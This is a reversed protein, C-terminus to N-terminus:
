FSLSSAQCQCLSEMWKDIALMFHLISLEGVSVSYQFLHQLQGNTCTCRFPIFLKQGATINTSLNKNYSQLTSLTSQFHLNLVDVTDTSQVTYYALAHECGTSPICTAEVHHTAIFLGLIQIAAAAALTVYQAGNHGRKMMRPCARGGAFLYSVAKRDDDDSLVWTCDIFISWTGIAMPWETLYCSDFEGIIYCLGTEPTWM